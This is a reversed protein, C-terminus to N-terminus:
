DQACHDIWNRFSRRNEKLREQYERYAIIHATHPDLHLITATM